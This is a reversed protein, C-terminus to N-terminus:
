TGTPTTSSRTYSRVVCPFTLRRLVAPRNYLTFFSGGVGSRSPSALPPAYPPRRLRPLTHPAVCAPSRTPPACPVKMKISCSALLAEIEGAAFLHVFRRFPLAHTRTHTRARPYSNSPSPLVCAGASCLLNKDEDGRVAERAEARRKLMRMITKKMMVFVVMAAAKEQQQQERFRM